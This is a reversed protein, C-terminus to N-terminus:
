EFQYPTNRDLIHLQVAVGLSRINEVVEDAIKKAKEFSMGENFTMQIGPIEWSYSFEDRGVQYYPWDDKYIKVWEFSNPTMIRDYEIAPIEIEGTILFEFDKGTRSSTENFAPNSDTTKSQPKKKLFNFLRM